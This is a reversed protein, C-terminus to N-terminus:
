KKMSAEMRRLNLIIEHLEDASFHLGGDFYVTIEEKAQLISLESTSVM